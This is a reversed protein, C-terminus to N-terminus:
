WEKTLIWLLTLKTVMNDFPQAKKQYINKTAVLRQQKGNKKKIGQEHWVWSDWVKKKNQRKKKKIGNDSSSGTNVASSMSIDPTMINTHNLLPTTNTYFQQQTTPFQHFQFYPPPSPTSIPSGCDHESAVENEEKMSFFDNDDDTFLPGYELFGLDIQDDSQECKCDQQQQEYSQSQHPTCLYRMACDLLEQDNYDLALSLPLSYSM